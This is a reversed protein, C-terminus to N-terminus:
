VASYDMPDITLNFTARGQDHVVRDTINNGLYLDYYCAGDGVSADTFLAVDANVDTGRARRNVTLWLRDNRSFGPIGDFRSAVVADAAFESGIM